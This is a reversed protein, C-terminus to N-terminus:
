INAYILVTLMILILAAASSIWLVTEKPVNHKKMVFVATYIIQYILCVPIVPYFCLLFVTLVISSKFADFGYSTSFFFSFGFVASYISYGLCFVYPAFSLMLLIKLIIKM